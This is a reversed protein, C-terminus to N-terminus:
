SVSWSTMRVIEPVGRHAFPPFLGFTMGVFTESKVANARAIAVRYEPREM